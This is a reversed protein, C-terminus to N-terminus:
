SPRFFKFLLDLRVLSALCCDEVWWAKFGQVFLFKKKKKKTKRGKASLARIRLARKSKVSRSSSSEFFLNQGTWNNRSYPPKITSQGITRSPLFFSNFLIKPWGVELGQIWHNARQKLSDNSLCNLKFENKKLFDSSDNSCSSERSSHSTEIIIPNSPWFSQNFLRKRRDLSQITGIPSTRPRLVISCARRCVLPYGRTDRSSHTHENICRTRNVPGHVPMCAYPCEDDDTPQQLLGITVRIVPSGCHCQDITVELRDAAKSTIM